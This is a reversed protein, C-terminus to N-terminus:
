QLMSELRERVRHPMAADAPDVRSEGHERRLWTIQRKAFQRTSAIGRELLTEHDYLGELYSWVQRYGVARMSPHETTLDGRSRLAAVEDIFGKALMSRFRAEIRGHLWRRDTPSLAISLVPGTLPPTTADRLLDALPRGALIGVELARQIRQADNPHLRAATDPDTDALRRHLAPWGERAGELTLAQRLEADAAPLKALGDTLVRFYLMTGGVLLPMRGRGRIDAIERLADERFRAASYPQAPDLIDILRHPACALTAADPKATGIDMGRYVLASDVSVIDCPYEKALEVALGDKGGASPGMLLIVPPTEVLIM